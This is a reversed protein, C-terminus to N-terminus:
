DVVFELQRLGHIRSITREFAFAAPGETCIDDLDINSFVRLPVGYEYLLDVLVVFRMAIDASDADLKYIDSIIVGNAKKSLDMYEARGIARACLDAFAFWYFGFEGAIGKAEVDMRQLVIQSPEAASGTLNVFLAEADQNGSIVVSDNNRRWDAGQALDLVHINRTLVRMFPLFQSRNIGDQYLDEPGWNSTACLTVGCRFLAQLLRGLLMADAINTVFFEDFCLLRAEAAIHLVIDMGAPPQAAHMRQHLEEMFPHFHVRRKDQLAVADFLLQMLMSKGRGVPGFMYIGLPAPAGDDQQWVQAGRWVTRSAPAALQTALLDLDPLIALQDEDSQLHASKLAQQYLQSPTPPDMKLQEPM